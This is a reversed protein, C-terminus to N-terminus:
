EKTGEEKNAEVVDEVVVDATEEGKIEPIEEIVEKRIQIEQRIEGVDIKIRNMKKFADYLAYSYNLRTRTQGFTKTWIDKIGAIQLIKKAEDGIVLGVGKPAPLLSVRVSGRKGEIEYPISHM